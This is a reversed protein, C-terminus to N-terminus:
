ENTSLTCDAERRFANRLMQLLMAYLYEDKSVRKIGVRQQQAKTLRNLFTKRTSLTQESSDSPVTIEEFTCHMM